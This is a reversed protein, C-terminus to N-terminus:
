LTLKNSESFNPIVQRRKGTKVHGQQSASNKHLGSDSALARMPSFQNKSSHNKIAHSIVGPKQLSEPMSWQNLPSLCKKPASPAAQAMIFFSAKQM